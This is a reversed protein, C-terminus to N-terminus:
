FYWSMSAFNDSPCGNNTTVSWRLNYWHVWWANRAPLTGSYGVHWTGDNYSASYTATANFDGNFLGGFIETPQLSTNGSSAATASTNKNLWCLNQAPFTSGYVYCYNDVFWQAGWQDGYLDGTCTGSLVRQPAMDFPLPQAEDQPPTATSKKQLELALADADLLERPLPQDPAARFFLESLTATHRGEVPQTLPSNGSDLPGKEITGFSGNDAVYFEVQRDKARYTYVRTLGQTATGAETETTGVESDAPGGSSCAASVLAFATILAHKM